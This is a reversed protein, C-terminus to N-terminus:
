PYTYPPRSPRRCLREIDRAVIEAVVQRLEVLDRSSLESAFTKPRTTFSPAVLSAAPEDATKGPGRRRRTAVRRQEALINEALDYAPIETAGLPEEARDAAERTSKVGRGHRGKGSMGATDPGSPGSQEGNAAQSDDRDFPPIVDAARLVQARTPKESLDTKDM